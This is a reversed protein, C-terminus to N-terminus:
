YDFSAPKSCLSGNLDLRCHEPLSPLSRRLPLSYMIIDYDVNVRRISTDKKPQKTYNRCPTPSSCIFSILLCCVCVLQRSPLFLPYQRFTTFTPFFADPRPPARQEKRPCNLSGRSGHIKVSIFIRARALCLCLTGTWWRGVLSGGTM